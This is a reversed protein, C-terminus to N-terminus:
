CISVNQRTLVDFSMTWGAVGETFKHKFQELRPNGDIMFGESRLNATKLNNALKTAVILQTNFVDHLNDNGRFLDTTDEKSIDLLDMFLITVSVRYLNDEIEVSNTMLHSLPYITLKETAVDFISGYTVTNVNDDNELLEKIKTTFSYFGNTM